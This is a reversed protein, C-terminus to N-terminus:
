EVYVNSGSVSISPQSVVIDDNTLLTDANWNIGGDSSHNYYIKNNENPSYGQSVVYINSGSVAISSPIHNSILKEGGWTIGGDTTRNYYGGGVSNKGGVAHVISGSGVISNPLISIGSIADWSKGNDTSRRYYQGWICYIADNQQRWSVYVSSGFAAICPSNVGEWCGSISSLQIVQRWSNGGNTSRRYYIVRNGNNNNSYWVVHVFQGSVAVSPLGSFFTLSLQTDNEWIIGGDTSRKYYIGGSNGEHNDYFVVHVFDGYAVISRGYAASSYFTDNTLRFDPQWQAKASSIGILYIVILLFSLAFLYFTTKKKGSLFRSKLSNASFSTLTNLM